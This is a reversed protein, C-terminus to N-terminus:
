YFFHLWRRAFFDNTLMLQFFRSSLSLFFGQGVDTFFEWLQRWHSFLGLWCWRFIIKASTSLFYSQNVDYLFIRVLFVKTLALSFYSIDIDATFVETVRLQSHQVLFLWSYSHSDSHVDRFFSNWIKYKQSLKFDWQKLWYFHNM